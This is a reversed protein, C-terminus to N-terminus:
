TDSRTGVANPAPEGVSPERSARKSKPPPNFRVTQQVPVQPAYKQWEESVPVDEFQWPRKMQGAGFICREVPDFHYLAEYRHWQKRVYYIGVPNSILCPQIYQALVEQGEM